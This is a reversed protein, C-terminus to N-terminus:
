DCYSGPPWTLLGESNSGNGHSRNIVHFVLSVNWLLSENTRAYIYTCVHTHYTFSTVALWATWLEPFARLSTTFCGRWAMMPLHLGRHPHSPTLFVIHRCTHTYKKIQTWTVLSIRCPFHMLRQFLLTLGSLDFFMVNLCVCSWM